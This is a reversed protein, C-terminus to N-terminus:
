RGAEKRLQEKDREWFYDKWPESAKCSVEHYGTGHSVIIDGADAAAGDTFYSPVNGKKCEPCTEAAIALVEERTKM